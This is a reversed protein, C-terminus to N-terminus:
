PPPAAPPPVNAARSLLDVALPYEQRQYHIWGLTDAFASSDNLRYAESSIQYAEELRAPDSSLLWALDNRAEAQGPDISIAKRLRSEAEGSRGRQLLLQAAHYPHEASEPELEAARDFMEVAGDIDGSTARITALAALTSAHDPDLALAKELVQQAESTRGASHLVRGRLAVLEVEEAADSEQARDVRRLAAELRGNEVDHEAAVSLSRLDGPPAADLLKWAAADNGAEFELSALEARAESDASSDLMARFQSRAQELSGQDRMTTAIILEAEDSGEHHRLHVRAWSLANTHSKQRRYIRALQLAAETQFPPM